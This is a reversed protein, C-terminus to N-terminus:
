DSVQVPRHMPKTRPGPVVTKPVHVGHKKMWREVRADMGMSAHYEIEIKGKNGTLEILELNQMVQDKLSKKGNRSAEFMEMTLPSKFSKVEVWREVNGETRVLDIEKELMNYKIRSIYKHLSDRPMGKLDNTQHYPKFWAPYDKLLQDPDLTGASIRDQIERIKLKVTGAVEHDMVHLSLGKVNPLTFYHQMEGLLGAVEISYYNTIDALYAYQPDDEIERLELERPDRQLTERTTELDQRIVNPHEITRLYDRYLTLGDDLDAIVEHLRDLRPGLAGEFEAARKPNLQILLHKLRDFGEKMLEQRSHYFDSIDEPRLYGFGAKRADRELHGLTKQYGKLDDVLDMLERKREALSGAHVVPDRNIHQYPLQAWDGQIETVKPEKAWQSHTGKVPSRTILVHTPDYYIQSRLFFDLQCIRTTRVGNKMLTRKRLKVEAQATPATPIATAILLLSIAISLPRLM